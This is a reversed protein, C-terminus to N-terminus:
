VPKKLVALGRIKGKWIKLRGQASAGVSKKSQERSLRDNPSNSPDSTKSPKQILVESEDYRGKQQFTVALNAVATITDPHEEGLVSKRLDLVQVELQEAENSQGQWWYYVGMRALLNPALVNYSEAELWATARLSHPLYLKCANWTEYSGDPFLDTMIQLARGSFARMQVTDFAGRTALQVLRHQEYTPLDEEVMRQFQLFSYEVLRGAALLVDDKGTNPGAAAKLLQFPLGQNDFFAITNLIKEACPSEQAIQRMSILWTRMVSNPVDSRHCDVFEANLLNSQQDESERFLNVYGHTSINTKRIYTAAQTIALPLRDLLTLLDKESQSPETTDPSRSLKQFLRLSEQDTMSGIHIGQEVGVLSGVIGGDRSTWIIAGSSSKPIFQFLESTPLQVEHNQHSFPKKFFKLDDANDLVLLWNTQRELWQQVGRLLDLGKLEPSLGALKAIDSYHQTFRAENDAHV